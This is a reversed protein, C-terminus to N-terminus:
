SINSHTLNGEISLIICPLCYGKGHIDRVKYSLGYNVRVLLFPRDPLAVPLLIRDRTM